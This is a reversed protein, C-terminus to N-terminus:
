IKQGIVRIPIIEGPVGSRVAYGIIFEGAIAKVGQASANSTIPDGPLVADGLKVGHIGISQFDLCEGKTVSCMSVGILYESGSNALLAVEDDVTSPKLILYSEIDEGATHTENLLDTINYSM